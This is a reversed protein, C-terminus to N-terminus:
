RAPRIGPKSKIAPASAYYEMQCLTFHLKVFSVKQPLSLRHLDSVHSMPPQSAENLMIIGGPYSRRDHLLDTINQGEQLFHFVGLLEAVEGTPVGMLEGAVALPGPAEGNGAVPPDRELDVLGFSFDEVQIILIIM